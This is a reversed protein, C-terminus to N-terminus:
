VCFYQGLRTTGTHAGSSKIHVCKLRERCKQLAEHHFLARPRSKGVGEAGGRLAPWSPPSPPTHSKFHSCIGPGAASEAHRWSSELAEWDEAEGQLLAFCPRTAWPSSKTSKWICGAAAVTFHLFCQHWGTKDSLLLHLGHSYTPRRSFLAQCKM